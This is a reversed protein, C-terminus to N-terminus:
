MRTTYVVPNKLIRGKCCLKGFTHVTCYSDTGWIDNNRYPFWAITNTKRENLLQLQLGPLYYWLVKHYQIAQREPETIDWYFIHVLLCLKIVYVISSSYNEPLWNHFILIICHQQTSSAQRRNIINIGKCLYSAISQWWFIRWLFGCACCSPLASARWATLLYISLRTSCIIHHNRHVSQSCFSTETWIIKKMLLYWMWICNLFITFVTNELQLLFWYKEIHHISCAGIM